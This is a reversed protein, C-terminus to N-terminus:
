STNYDTCIINCYAALLRGGDATQLYEGDGRQGLKAVAAEFRQADELFAEYRGM